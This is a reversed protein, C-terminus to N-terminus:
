GLVNKGGPKFELQAFVDLNLYFFFSLFFRLRTTAVNKGVYKGVGTWLAMKTAGLNVSLRLLPFVVSRSARLESGTIFM